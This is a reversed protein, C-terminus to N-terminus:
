EILQISRVGFNPSGNGSPPLIGQAIFETFYGTLTGSSGRADFDNM